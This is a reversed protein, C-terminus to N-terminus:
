TIRQLVSCLLDWFKSVSSISVKEDPSHPYKITPGISVMDMNPYAAGIIGCELGAHVSYVKPEEKFLDTYAKKVVQVIHSSENPTWGPYAGDTKVEGGALTFLAEIQKCVNERASELASRILCKVKISSQDCAIIGTNVSTEVGGSPTDLYRIVGNPCIYLARIVKLSNEQTFVFEPLSVKDVSCQIDPDVLGIEAHIMQSFRGVRKKIEDTHVSDFCITAEAERCIANHVEGGAIHGLSFSCLEQLSFLLRALIVIANGRQLHIDVGSHGGLLGSVKIQLCSLKEKSDLAVPPSEFTVGLDQGGACGICIEDDDESDLNILIEGALLNDDLQLAGTMGTEEDVTFLAEVPGHTLSDDELVALAAAVGIGNDAGLTTDRAVVWDGKIATSIPDTLFDHDSKKHKQPVMDMHAQLTVVPATENNSSAKKRVVVNGTKDTSHSLHHTEAFSIIYERILEENRSTHPRRSIEDFHKWLIAPKLDSFSHM